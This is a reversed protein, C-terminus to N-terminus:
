FSLQQPHLFRNLLYLMPFVLMMAGTNFLALPFLVNSFANIWDVPRGLFNLLLLALINFLLTLPFALGLPVVISSGFVRGHFLNATLALVLMTLSFVGFPAGSFFDLSVGGM